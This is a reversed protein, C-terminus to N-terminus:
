RLEARATGVNGLGDTLKVVLTYVGGDRYGDLEVAFSEETSDAIGDVLVRLSDVSKPPLRDRKSLGHAGLDPAYLKAIPDLLADLLKMATNSLAGDAMVTLTQPGANGGATLQDIKRRVSLVLKRNLQALSTPLLPSM